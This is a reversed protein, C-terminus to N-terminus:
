RYTENTESWSTKSCSIKLFVDISGTEQTSELQPFDHEFHSINVDFPHLYRNCFMLDLSLSGELIVSLFIKLDMYLLVPLFLIFNARRFKVGGDNLSLFM